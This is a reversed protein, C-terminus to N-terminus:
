NWKKNTERNYWLNLKFIYCVLVTESKRYLKPLYHNQMCTFCFTVEFYSTRRLLIKMKDFGKRLIVDIKEAGREVSSLQWISVSTILHGLVSCIQIKRQKLLSGLTRFYEQLLHSVWRYSHHYVEKEQVNQYTVQRRSFSELCSQQEGATHTHARRISANTSSHTIHTQSTGTLSM